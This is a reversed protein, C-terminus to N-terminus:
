YFLTVSRSKEGNWFFFILIKGFHCDCLLNHSLWRRSYMCRHHVIWDFGVFEDEKTAFKKISLGCHNVLIEVSVINDFLFPLFNGTRVLRRRPTWMLSDNLLFFIIQKIKIVCEKAAFFPHVNESSTFVIRQISSESCIQIRKKLFIYFECGGTLVLKIVVFVKPSQIQISELPFIQIFVVFESWRWSPVNSISFFQNQIEVLFFFFFSEVVVTSM